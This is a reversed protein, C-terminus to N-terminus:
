GGPTCRIGPSRGIRSCAEALRRHGIRHQDGGGFRQGGGFASAAFGLCLAPGYQADSRGGAGRRRRIRWGRGLRDPFSLVRFGLLRDVHRELGHLALLDLDDVADHQRPRDSRGVRWVGARGSGLRDPFDVHGSPWLFQGSGPEAAVGPSPALLETMAPRRALNFLHQDLCDFLWGLAAM